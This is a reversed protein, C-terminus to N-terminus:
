SLKATAGLLLAGLSLVAAYRRICLAERRQKCYIALREAMFCKDRGRVLVPGSMLRSTFLQVFIRSRGYRLDIAALNALAPNM